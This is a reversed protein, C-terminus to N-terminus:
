TRPVDLSGGYSTYLHFVDIRRKKFWKDRKARERYSGYANQSNIRDIEIQRIPDEPDYPRRTRNEEQWKELGRSPLDETVADFRELLLSSPAESWPFGKEGWTERVSDRMGGFTVQGDCDGFGKSSLVACFADCELCRKWTEWEDWLGSYYHYTEGKRIKRYCECCRHEKRAVRVGSSFVKPHDCM